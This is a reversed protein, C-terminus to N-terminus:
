RCCYRVSSVRYPGRHGGIYFDDAYRHLADRVRRHLPSPLRHAVEAKSFGRDILYYGVHARRVHVREDVIPRQRAATALQIAWRAVENETSDSYRAIRSVQKRYVERSDFDMSSYAEAPDEASSRMPLRRAAGHRLGTSTPSKACPSFAPPSSNAFAPDAAPGEFHPADDSLLSGRALRPRIWSRSWCFSACRSPCSWLEELLLPKRASSSTSTSASRMRTGSPPAPPSIPPPSRPPAPNM